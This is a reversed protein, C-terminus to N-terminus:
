QHKEIHSPYLQFFVIEHCFACRVFPIDYLGPKITQIYNLGVELQEWECKPISQFVREIDARDGTVCNVVIPHFDDWRAKQSSGEYLAVTALKTGVSPVGNKMWGLPHSLIKIVHHPEKGTTLDTFVAVLPPNTAVVVGPNVCGYLFHERARIALFRLKQYPSSIQIYFFVDFVAIGLLAFPTNHHFIEGRRLIDFFASAFILNIVVAPVIAIALSFVLLVPESPFSRIWYRYDVQLGGPNSAYTSDDLTFTRKTKKPM